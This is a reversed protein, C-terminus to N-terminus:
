PYFSFPLPLVFLAPTLHFSCSYFSFAAAGLWSAAAGGGSASGGWDRAALRDREAQGCLPAAQFPRSM